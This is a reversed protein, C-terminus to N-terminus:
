APQDKPCGEREGRKFEGPATDDQKEFDRPMAIHLTYYGDITARDIAVWFREELTKPAKGSGSLKKRLAEQDEAACDAFKKGYANQAMKDIAALGDKWFGKTHEDSDAVLADICACVGVAKAGATYKDAPIISESLADITRIQQANFFKRVRIALRARRPSSQANARRLGGRLTRVAAASAGGALVKPAQCRSPLAARNSRSV